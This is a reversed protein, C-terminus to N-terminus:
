GLGLAPGDQVSAELGVASVLEEGSAGALDEPAVFCFSFAEGGGDWYLLTFGRGEFLGIMDAMAQGTFGPAHARFTLLSGEAEPLGPASWDEGREGIACVCTLAVKGDRFPKPVRIGMHLGETDM